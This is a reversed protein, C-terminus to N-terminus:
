LVASLHKDLSAKVFSRSFWKRHKAVAIFNQKYWVDSKRAAM